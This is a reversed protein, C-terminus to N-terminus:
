RQEEPTTTPDAQLYAEYNTLSEGDSGWYPNFQTLWSQLARM